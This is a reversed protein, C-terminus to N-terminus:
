EVRYSNGNPIPTYRVEEKPENEDQSGHYELPPDTDSDESNSDLLFLSLPIIWMTLFM